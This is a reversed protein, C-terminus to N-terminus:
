ICIVCCCVAMSCRRRGGGGGRGAPVTAKGAGLLVPLVVLGAALPRCGSSLSSSPLLPLLLRLPLSSYPCPQASRWPQSCCSGLQWPPPTWWVAPQAGGGAAAWCLELRPPPAPVCRVGLPLAHETQARQAAHAAHRQVGPPLPPNACRVRTGGVTGTLASTGNRKQAGTSTGPLGARPKSVFGGIQPQGRGRVRQDAAACCVAVLRLMAGPRQGPRRQPGPDPHM